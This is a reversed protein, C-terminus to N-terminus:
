KKVTLKVKKSSAYYKANGKYTIKATYKGKKTLKKLKFTAKGKNNTKASYTKGKVKLYVKVKKIVKGASTKLTISYKKTKKVKFTQKKAIIKTAIKSVVTIPTPTVESVVKLSATTNAFLYNDDGSYTIVANYVGANLGSINVTATGNSLTATYNNGNVTVTLNGTANTPLIVTVTPVTGNVVTLTTSNLVVNIVFVPEPLVNFVANSISSKGEYSVNAYYKGAPLSVSKNGKGGSVTVNVVTGNVDVSYIGDITATVTILAENPYYVDGVRVAIVNTATSEVVNVKVENSTTSVYYDSGRTYNATFTYEGAPLNFSVPTDKTLTTNVVGNIFLTIVGNGDNLTASINVPTTELINLETQGNATLTLQTEGVITYNVGKSLDSQAYIKDDSVNGMYIAYLFQTKVLM